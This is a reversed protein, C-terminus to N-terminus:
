QPIRAQPPMHLKTGGPVKEAPNLSPNLLHISQWTDSNGLTKQAIDRLTEGNDPVTYVYDRAAPAPPAAEGSQLSLSAPANGMPPSTQGKPVANPYRKMLVEIPPIRVYGASRPTDKNYQELAAAYAEDEYYRRSITRYTDNSSAQHLDEDYGGDHGVAAAPLPRTQSPSGEIKVEPRPAPPDLPKLPGADIPSVVPVSLAGPRSDEKPLSHERPMPGPSVPPDLPPFDMKPLLEEKKAPEGEKRPTITIVPRKPELEKVELPKIGGPPDEIKPAPMPSGVRPTAPDRSVPAPTLEELPPVM